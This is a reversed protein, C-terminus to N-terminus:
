PSLKKVGAGLSLTLRASSERRLIIIYIKLKGREKGVNVSFGSLDYAIRWFSHPTLVIEVFRILKIFFPSM